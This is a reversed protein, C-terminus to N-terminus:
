LPLTPIIAIILLAVVSGVIGVVAAPRRVPRLAGVGGLVLAIVSIAIAVYTDPAMATTGFVFPRCGVLIGVLALVLSMVAPVNGAPTTDDDDEDFDPDYGSYGTGYGPANGGAYGPAPRGPFSPHDFPGSPGPRPPGAPFRGGPPGAFGGTPPAPRFGGTPAGPRFGGPPPAPRFPPPFGGPPTPARRPAPADATIADDESGSASGRGPGSDSGTASGSDPVDDPRPGARHRGLTDEDARPEPVAEAADPRDHGPTQGEGMDADEDRGMAPTETGQLM